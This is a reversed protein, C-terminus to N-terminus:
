SLSCVMMYRKFELKWFHIMQYGKIVANHLYSAMSHLQWLARRFYSKIKPKKPPGFFPSLACGEKLNFYVIKSPLLILNLLDYSVCFRVSKIMEYVLLGFPWSREGSLWCTM